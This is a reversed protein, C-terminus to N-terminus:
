RRIGAVGAPLSGRYNSGIVRSPTVGVVFSTRITDTQERWELRPSAGSVDLSTLSGDLAGIYLRGGDVIPADLTSNTRGIDFEWLVRGRAADYCTVFGSISSVYIRGAEHTFFRTDELPPQQRADRPGRWRVTGTRRDIGYLVGSKVLMVVVTDAIVDPGGSTFFNSPEPVEPALTVSRVLTRDRLNFEAYGAFRFDVRRQTGFLVATDGVIRPYRANIDPPLLPALAWRIVGDALDVGVPGGVIGGAIVVPAPGATIAIESTGIDPRAWVVRRTARDVAWLGRAAVVTIPGASLIQEPTDPPAAPSLPVTWLTAGTNASLAVFRTGDGSVGLVTDGLVTAGLPNIGRM